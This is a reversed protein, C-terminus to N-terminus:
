LRGMLSATLQVVLRSAFPAVQGSVHVVIRCPKTGKNAVPTEGQTILSCCTARAFSTSGVKCAALACPQRRACTSASLTPLLSVYPLDQNLSKPAMPHDGISKTSGNKAKHPCCIRHIPRAGGKCTARWLKHEHCTACSRGRVTSRQVAIHLISTWRARQKKSSFAAPVGAAKYLHSALCASAHRGAQRDVMCEPTGLVNVRAKILTSVPAKKSWPTPTHTPANTCRTSCRGCDAVHLWYAPMHMRTHADTCAQGKVSHPLGSVPQASHDPMGMSNPPYPQRTRVAGGAHRTHRANYPEHHSPTVWSTPQAVRTKGPSTYPWQRVNHYLEMASNSTLLSDLSNYLTAQRRNDARGGPTIQRKQTAHRVWQLTICGSCRHRMKKPTSRGLEEPSNCILTRKPLM